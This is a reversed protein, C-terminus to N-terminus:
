QSVGGFELPIESPVQNPNMSAPIEIELEHRSVVNALVHPAFVQPFSSILVGDIRISIGPIPADLFAQLAVTGSFARAEPRLGIVTTVVYSGPKRVIRVGPNLRQLYASVMGLQAVAVPQAGQIMAGGTLEVIDVTIPFGNGRASGSAFAAVLTCLLAAVFFRM